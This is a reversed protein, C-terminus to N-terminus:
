RFEITLIGSKFIIRKTGDKKTIEIEYKSFDTLKGMEMQNNMLFVIADRGIVSENILSDKVKQSEKPAQAKEM